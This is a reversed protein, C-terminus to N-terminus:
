SGAPALLLTTEVRNRGGAKAKYLAADAAALLSGPMSMTGGIRSLATAAGISATVQGGGEPNGAHPVGLSQIAARIQEAVAAAGDAGTRPLIVAIEEGGYRAALDAPRRVSSGVVAAVARLCDDGVQHGYHDNFAKFHDVDLLLLSMMANERITRQWEAEFAEDFARRNALGTLGDKRALEALQQELEVRRTVDRLVLVTDTPRQAAEDWVMRATVEAWFVSGDRRLSRAVTTLRDTQRALLTRIADQVIWRDEPATLEKASRGVIEQPTWGFLEAASPSVYRVTGDPRVNFIVDLSHEALLQFDTAEGTGGTSAASAEALKGPRLLGRVFDTLYRM